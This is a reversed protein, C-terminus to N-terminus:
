RPMYTMCHVMGGQQSVNISEASCEFDANYSCGSVKCAGVGANASSNKIHGTAKMFTDCGPQFGDGITIAKAHCSSKVNYVCENVDCKKILPMNIMIEM